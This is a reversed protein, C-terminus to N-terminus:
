DFSVFVLNYVLRFYGKCLFVVHKMVFEYVKRVKLFVLTWKGTVLSFRFVIESNNEIKITRLLVNYMSIM